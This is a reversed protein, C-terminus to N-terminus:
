KKVISNKWQSKKYCQNKRLLKRTLVSFDIELAEFSNAQQELLQTLACRLVEGQEAYNRVSGGLQFVHQKSAYVHHAEDKKIQDYVISFPHRPGLASKTMAYMLQCVCADLYYINSFLAEPTNLQRGTKAYFHKAQQQTRGM